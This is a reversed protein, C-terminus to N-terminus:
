RHGLIQPKIAPLYDKDLVNVGILLDHMDTEFGRRRMARSWVGSGSFIELAKRVCRDFTETILLFVQRHLGGVWSANLGMCIDNTKLLWLQGNHSTKFRWLQENRSTKIRRLRSTNLRWLQGNRSTKFRWLQVNRITKFRWLQGNRSTKFHWLQGNRITKLRWLQGNRITKFRWLQGDCSKLRWLQGNHCKQSAM